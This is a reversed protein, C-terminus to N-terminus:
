RAKQLRVEYILPQMWENRKEDYEVGPQVSDRDFNIVSWGSVTLGNSQALDFFAKCYEAVQLIRTASRPKTGSLGDDWLSIQVRPTEFEHTFWRDVPGGGVAHYVAYPKTAGSTASMFYFRGGISTYFNDGSNATFYTYLGQYLPLM